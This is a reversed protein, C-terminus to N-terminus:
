MQSQSSPAICIDGSSFSPTAHRRVASDRHV